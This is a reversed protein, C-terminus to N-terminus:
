ILNGSYNWQNKLFNNYGVNEKINTDDGEAKRLKKYENM